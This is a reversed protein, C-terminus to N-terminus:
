FCFPVLQQCVGSPRVALCETFFGAAGFSPEQAKQHRLNSFLCFQHFEGGCRGGRPHLGLIPLAPFSSELHHGQQTRPWTKSEPTDKKGNENFQISTTRAAQQDSWFTKLSSFPATLERVILAPKSISLFQAKALPLNPSQPLLRPTYPSVQTRSHLVPPSPLGRPFPAPSVKTSGRQTRSAGDM